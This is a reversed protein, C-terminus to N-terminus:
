NGNSIVFNSVNDNNTSFNETKWHEFHLLFRNNVLARFCKGTVKEKEEELDYKRHSTDRKRTCM